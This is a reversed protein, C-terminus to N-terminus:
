AIPRGTGPPSPGASLVISKSKVLVLLLFPETATPGLQLKKAFIIISIQQNEFLPCDIADLVDRRVKGCQQIDDCIIEGDLTVESLRFMSKDKLTVLDDVDNNM